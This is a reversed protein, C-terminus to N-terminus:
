YIKKSNNETSIVEPHVAYLSFGSRYQNTFPFPALDIDFLHEVRSSDFYSSSLWAPNEDIIGLRRNIKDFYGYKIDSVLIKEENMKDLFWINNGKKVGDDLIHWIPYAPSNVALTFSGEGTFYTGKPVIQAIKNSADRKTFTATSYWFINLSLSIFVFSTILIKNLLLRNDNIYLYSFYVGLPMLALMLHKSTLRDITDTSIYLWRKIETSTYVGTLYFSVPLSVIIIFILKFYKNWNKSYDQRKNLVFNIALIFSPILLHVQRRHQNLEGNICLALISGVIWVISLLEIESIRKIEYVIGKQFIRFSIDIFYFMIAIMIFISDPNKLLQFGKISLAFSKIIELLSLVKDSGIMNFFIIYNDFQPIVFFMIFPIAVALFGTFGKILNRFNLNERLLDIGIFIVLPVLFIIASLKALIGFAISAGALYYFFNNRQNGMHYFLMFATLFATELMVPSAWRGYILVTHCLGFMSSSLLANLKKMKSRFIFYLMIMILWLALLSVLRATVFSVGFLSFVIYNLFSYLPASVLPLSHGDNIFLGTIIKSRASHVWYGEDIADPYYFLPSPDASLKILQFIFIGIFFIISYEELKNFYKNIM